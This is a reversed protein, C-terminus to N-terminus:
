ENRVLGDALAAAGGVVSLGVMGIGAAAAGTLFARRSADQAAATPHNATLPCLAASCTRGTASPCRGHDDAAKCQQQLRDLPVAVLEAPDLGRDNRYWRLLARDVSTLGAHGAALLTLWGAAYPLDPGYFFPRTHWSATLFFLLSLGAGAGAALRLALGILTLLGVTFEAVAILLAFPLPHPLVLARLLGGVPSGRAFGRTLAAFGQPGAGFWAPSLLKGAGADIFTLGLFLRLPLLTWSRTARQALPPNAPQPVTPTSRHRSPTASRSM